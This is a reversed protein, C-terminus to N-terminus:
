PNIIPFNEMIKKFSMISIGTPVRTLQGSFSMFHEMFSELGEKEKM